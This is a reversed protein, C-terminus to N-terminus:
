RGGCGCRSNGDGERRHPVGERSGIELGIHVLKEGFDGSNKVHEGCELPVLAAQNAGDIAQLRVLVLRLGRTAVLVLGFGAVVV